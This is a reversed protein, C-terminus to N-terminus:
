LFIAPGTFNPHDQMCISYTNTHTCYCSKFQFYYRWANVAMATKVCRLEEEKDAYTSM